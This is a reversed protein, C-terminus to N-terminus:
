EPLKMSLEMSATHPLASMATAAAKTPSGRHRRTERGAPETSATRSPGKKERGAQALRRHQLFAYAIMTMLAHRHLGQWSRGEFHDLGLEEKMQQHAQECVWRAKITAALTKLHMDAPLNSLYYKREGSSRLEGILWAEEGPMHQQGKDLIRQPERDAVRIRTAAFTAELPGKTGVRWSLNIWSADALMTEAAISLTDPIPNKRLRGRGAVPYVLSVDLPYVKQHKPIGVAWVLDRATLGQRFPASLGYGADALVTGFRVGTAALRDIEDLAIEPKTRPNRWPEPVGAREMRAPDGSWSEPLFLRLGVAVPVEDRALTLSVLTQCNANKGLASAYQPAVGVSHRGKKPLATDDVVLVADPGGVMGDAQRALEEELPGADWVGSSIFHHLRDYRDPVLRAAMPEISKREGPGLLGSVYLPCMQRRRKHGLRALFPELWQTIEETWTRM